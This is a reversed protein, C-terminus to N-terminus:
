LPTMKKTHKTPKTTLDAAHNAVDDEVPRSSQHVIQRSHQLRGIVNQNLRAPRFHRQFFKARFKGQRKGFKIVPVRRMHRHRLKLFPKMAFEPARLIRNTLQRMRPLKELKAPVFFDAREQEAGHMPIMKRRLAAYRAKSRKEVFRVRVNPVFSFFNVINQGLVIQLWIFGHEDTVHFMVNFRRPVAANMRTRHQRTVIRQRLQAGRFRIQNDFMEPFQPLPQLFVTEMQMRLLAERFRM